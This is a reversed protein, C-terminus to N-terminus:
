PRRSPAHTAPGSPMFLPCGVYDAMALKVLLGYLLRADKVGLLKSVVAALLRRRVHFSQPEVAVPQVRSVRVHAQERVLVEFLCGLLAM